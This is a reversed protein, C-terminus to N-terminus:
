KHIKQRNDPWDYKDGLQRKVFDIFASMTKCEAFSSYEPLFYSLKRYSHPTAIEIDCGGGDLIGKVPKFNIIRSQTPLNDLNFYKLSDSFNTWGCLPIIEKVMFVSDGTHYVDKKIVSAGRENTHFLTYSDYHYGKWGSSDAKFLYLSIGLGFVDWPRVRIEFSDVGKYMVPLNFLRAYQGVSPALKHYSSDSESPSYFDFAIKKAQEHRCATLFIIFLLMYNRMRQLRFPSM